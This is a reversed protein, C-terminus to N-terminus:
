TEETICLVTGIRVWFTGQLGDNQDYITKSGFSSLDEGGKSADMSEDLWAEVEAKSKPGDWHPGAPHKRRYRKPKERTNKLRQKADVEIEYADQHEINKDSYLKRVFDKAARVRVYATLRDFSTVQGSKPPWTPARERKIM